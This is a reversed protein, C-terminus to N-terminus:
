GWVAPALFVELKEMDLNKVEEAIEEKSRAGHDKAILCWKISVDDGNMNIGDIYM